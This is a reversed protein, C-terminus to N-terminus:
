RSSSVDEEQIAFADVNMDYKTVPCLSFHDHRSEDDMYNYILDDSDGKM